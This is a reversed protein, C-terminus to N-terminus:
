CNKHLWTKRCSHSVDGINLMNVNTGANEEDFEPFSYPSEIAVFEEATMETTHFHNANKTTWGGIQFVTIANEDDPAAITNLNTAGRCFLFDIKEQNLTAQAINYVEGEFTSYFSGIGPENFSGLEIDTTKKV